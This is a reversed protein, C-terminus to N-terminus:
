LGVAERQEKETMTLAAGLAARACRLWVEHMVKPSNWDGGPTRDLYIARAVREVAEEPPEAGASRYPECLWGDLFDQGEPVDACGHAVVATVAERLDAETFLRRSPPYSM